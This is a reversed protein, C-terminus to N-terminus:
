DWTVQLVLSVVRGATHFGSHLEPRENALDDIRATALYSGALRASLDASIVTASAVPVGRDLTASAYTARLQASLWHLPRGQIWADGRHRPLLDIPDDHAPVDDFAAAHLKEYEYAVGVELMPHLTARLRSDVGWSQVAGLNLLEGFTMVSLSRAITATTRKFYPAVELHVRDALRGIARLEVHVLHEPRLRSNGTDLDYRERLSPARSKYAGTAVLELGRVPAYGVQGQAEPWVYPRFGLMAAVGASADARLERQAYQIDGAAEILTAQGRSARNVIDSAAVKEFLATASGAWRFVELFPRSALAAAGSQVAQFNEVAQQVSLAPDAFSRTRQDGYQTWAQAALELAGLQDDARVQARATTDRDVLVIPGRKADDPPAVFHRDDISGDVAIRLNGDHYELRGAGDAAHRREGLSDGPVDLERGGGLESASIRLALHPTLPTRLTGTAGASPLSDGTARVIALQPGFADRTVVDIVGGSGGPGALPSAPLAGVRIEVIDTIPLAGADLTGDYPDSIAIGDIAVRIAAGSAGRLSIVLRGRADPQVVVDPLLALATALDVAGRAALDAGTLRLESDAHAWTGCLAV